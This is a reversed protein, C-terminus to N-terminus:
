PANAGGSIRLSLRAQEKGKQGPIYAEKNELGKKVM